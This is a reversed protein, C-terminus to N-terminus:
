PVDVVIEASPESIVTGYRARMRVYYRGSPVGPVFLEPSPGMAFGSVFNALGPASGAELVYGTAGAAPSWTLAVANGNVQVTLGTPPPPGSVVVQVEDSPEGMGCAGVTAVSVYYTGPPAGATSFTTTSAPLPLRAVPTGGPVLAARLEYGMPTTGPAATWTVTPWADASAMVGHPGSPLRTCGLAGSVFAIEPSPPGDLGNARPVVQLYYRGPPVPASVQTTDGSLDVSALDAAGPQSGVRLRYSTPRTGTPGPIWEVTVLTGQVRVFSDALAHPAGNTSTRRPYFYVPRWSYGEAAVVLGGSVDHLTRAILPPPVVWPLLAGTVADAAFIGDIGAAHGASFVVGDRVALSGWSQLDAVAWSDVAATTADIRALGRRPTGGVNGSAGGVYIMDGAASLQVVAAHAPALPDTTELAGSAADFRAFARFGAAWVRGRAVGLMTFGAPAPHPFRYVTPANFPLVEGTLRDVAALSRRPQGNVTAGYDTAMYLNPGAIELDSIWGTVQPAFPLLTWTSTDIAALSQRPQGNMTTFGGGLYLTSDSLAMAGVTGNPRPTDALTGSSLDIAVFGPVEIANHTSFAGGVAIRTGEATIARVHEGFRPQWDPSPAASVAHVKTVFARADSKTHGALFVHNESAALARVNAAASLPAWQLVEGSSLDIAAAGYRTAGGFTAFDGGVYIVNGAVDLDRVHGAGFEDGPDPAISALAGTARDFVALNTRPQGNATSFLGGIVIASGTSVIRNIEWYREGEGISATWPLLGGTTLEFRALNQRPQGGAWHFNGGVFLSTGSVHLATVAIGQLGFDVPLLTGSPIDIAALLPGAVGGVSEFYGGIFLTTGSRAMRKIDASEVTWPLQRGSADLHVLRRFLPEATFQGLLFWGGAGDGIVQDVVGGALTPDAALLEATDANFVGMPGIVDRTRAVFPMGGLLLRDGVQEAAIVARADVGDVTWALAPVTDPLEQASATHCVLLAALWATLVCTSLRGVLAGPERFRDPGLLSVFITFAFSIEDM